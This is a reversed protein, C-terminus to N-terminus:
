DSETNLGRSAVSRTGHARTVIENWLKKTDADVGLLQSPAQLNAGPSPEAGSPPGESSSSGGASPDTEEPPVLGLANMISVDIAQKIYDLAGQDIADRRQEDFIELIKEDPFEEGLTHLASRKSELGLQMKMQIENLKVLTDVPLPSPWVCNTNYVASDKPDLVPLQAPDTLEGFEEPHYVLTEPEHQFLTRLILENIKKIGVTYSMQKLGARQILPLWQVSLAVGSTNSIPQMQGLATEPVGTLEHMSRKLLEMYELPGSLNVGSELNYVKAEKPLGGWIRKAGKELNSAKAGTIVTTPAAHYNVIDAIDTATDNYQRNLPILDSVDSLGWPSGSVEINRIHVIPIQGLPNEREDVLEDNIWEQIWDDTLTECYSYVQRTGDDATAWFKYKLRMRTIVDRDHPAYEPFCHASHLPILRVRGAHNVGTSDTYPEEYAVKVFSDGSVGGNEGMQYLTENKSNDQEWARRLLNPVIHEFRKESEFHVGNGFTFQNIYRAFAGVYNITLQPEGAERRFSYHHGLYFAFANAIRTLRPGHVEFEEDSM